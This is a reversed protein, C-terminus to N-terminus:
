SERAKLIGMHSKSIMKIMNSKWNNGAKETLLTWLGETGPYVNRGIIMGDDDITILTNGIITQGDPLKLMNVYKM